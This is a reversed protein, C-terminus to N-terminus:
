FIRFPTLIRDLFQQFKSTLGPMQHLGMIDILGNGSRQKQKFVM